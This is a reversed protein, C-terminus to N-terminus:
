LLTLRQEGSDLASAMHTEMIRNQHILHFPSCRPSHHMPPTVLHSRPLPPEVAPCYHLPPIAHSHLTLYLPTVVPSRRVLMTATSRRSLPSHHLLPYYHLMMLTTYLRSLPSHHLLPYYRLMMLTNYLRSLSLHHVTTCCRSLSADALCHHACHHCRLSPSHHLLHHLM